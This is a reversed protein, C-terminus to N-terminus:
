ALLPDGANALLRLRRVDEETHSRYRRDEFRALAGM